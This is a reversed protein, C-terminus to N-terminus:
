PTRQAPPDEPPHRHHRRNGILVGVAAMLPGCALVAPWGIIRSLFIPLGLLVVGGGVALAFLAATRGSAHGGRYARFGLWWAAAVPILVILAMFVFAVLGLGPPEPESSTTYGQAGLFTTSAARGVFIAVPVLAVATWALTLDWRARPSAKHQGPGSLHEFEPLLTM